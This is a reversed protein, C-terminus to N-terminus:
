VNGTGPGPFKLEKLQPDEKPQFGPLGVSFSWPDGCLSGLPGGSM